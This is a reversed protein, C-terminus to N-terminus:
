LSLSRPLFFYPSLSLFRHVTGSTVSYDLSRGEKDKLRCVSDDLVNLVLIAVSCDRM